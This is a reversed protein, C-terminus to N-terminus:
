EYHDWLKNIRISKKFKDWDYGFENLFKWFNNYDKVDDHTIKSVETDNMKSMANAVLNPDSYMYLKHLYKICSMLSKRNAFKNEDDLLFMNIEDGNVQLELGLRLNPFETGSMNFPINYYNEDQREQFDEFTIGKIVKKPFSEYNDNDINDDDLAFNVYVDMKHKPTWSNKYLGKEEGYNRIKNARNPQDGQIKNAARFYTSRNLENVKLIKM